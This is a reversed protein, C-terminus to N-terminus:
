NDGDRHEHNNAGTTYDHLRDLLNVLFYFACAILIFGIVGFAAIFGYTLGNYIANLM